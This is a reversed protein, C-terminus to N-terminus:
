PTANGNQGAQQALTVAEKEEPSLSYTSQGAELPKAYVYSGDRNYIGTLVMGDQNDDVIALSFSLDSGREGFANYRKIGIHGKLGTMKSRLSKMSARHTEQEDEITDMQVKLDILLTELNEVGSGAMMTEYKRRMKKLKAGQVIIVILLILLILVIGAVIGALQEMILGNLEAM